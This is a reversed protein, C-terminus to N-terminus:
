LIHLEKGVVKVGAAEKKILFGPILDVFLLHHKLSFDMFSLSIPLLVM